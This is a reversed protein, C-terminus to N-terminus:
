LYTPEVQNKGYYASVAVIARRTAVEQDNTFPEKAGVEDGKFHVYATVTMDFINAIIVINLKVMLKFVLANSNLPDFIQHPFSVWIIGNPDSNEEVNIGYAIAAYKTLEKDTM